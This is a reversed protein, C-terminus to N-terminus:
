LYRSIIWHHRLTIWCLSSLKTKLGDLPMFDLILLWDVLESFKLRIIAMGTMLTVMFTLTLDLNKVTFAGAKSMLRILQFVPRLKATFETKWPGVSPRCSKKNFVLLRTWIIGQTSKTCPWLSLKM